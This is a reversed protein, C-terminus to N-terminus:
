YMPDQGAPKGVICLLASCAWWIPRAERRKIAVVVVVVVVVKVAVVFHTSSRWTQYRRRTAAGGKFICATSNGRSEASERCVAQRKSEREM